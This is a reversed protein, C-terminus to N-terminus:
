RHNFLVLSIHSLKLYNYQYINYINVLASMYYFCSRTLGEGEKDM